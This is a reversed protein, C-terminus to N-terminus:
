SCLQVNPNGHKAVVVIKAVKANRFRVVLVDRRNVLAGYTGALPGARRCDPTQFGDHRTVRYGVDAAGAVRVTDGVKM